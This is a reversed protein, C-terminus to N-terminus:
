YAISYTVLKYQLDQCDLQKVLYMPFSEELDEGSWFSGFAFEGKRSMDELEKEVDEMCNGCGRWEELCFGEIRFSGSHGGDIYYGTRERKPGGLKKKVYQKMKRIVKYPLKLLIFVVLQLVLCQCCCSIVVCDAAIM